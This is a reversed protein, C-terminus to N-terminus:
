NKFQLFRAISASRLACHGGPWKEFQVPAQADLARQAFLTGGSVFEKDEQNVAVLAFSSRENLISSVRDLPSVQRKWFAENPVVRKIARSVFRVVDRSAGTNKVFQDVDEDMAWPSLNMFAPCILAVKEFNIRSKHMLIQSSNFGGMSLGMLSRRKVHVGLTKEEIESIVQSLFIDLLGSFPKSSKPTLLWYKGFSISVVIPAAYNLSEWEAYVGESITEWEREDGGGGHLYYLVDQSQSDITKTICFKYSKSKGCETQNKASSVLTFFLVILVILQNKM